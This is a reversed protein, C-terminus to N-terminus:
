GRERQTRYPCNPCLQGQRELVGIQRELAEGTVLFRNAERQVKKVADKDVNESEGLINAVKQGLGGLAKEDASQKHALYAPCTGDQRNCVPPNDSLRPLNTVM